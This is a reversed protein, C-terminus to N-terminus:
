PRSPSRDRDQRGDRPGFAEIAEADSAVNDLYDAAWAAAHPSGAAVIEARAAAVDFMTRHVTVAGDALVAWHAGARGYPMGVSGPNVILRRHALRVFPMHTHGCVVTAVDDPLSSLMDAWRSLRTDVLVVQEDDDPVAHCFLVPGFGAVSLTVPHPLGALLEVQNSRLQAAAWPAIPDGVDDVEGRALSVLERDANGRVLVVRDGLAILRDLTQVPMPGAALDGTVVLRDAAQVAPQALVADLAPLVGHVDSLV